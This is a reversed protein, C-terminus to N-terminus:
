PVNKGSVGTVNGAQDRTVTERYITKGGAEYDFTIQLGSVVESSRASQQGRDLRYANGATIGDAHALPYAREKIMQLRTGAQAEAMSHALNEGQTMAEPRGPPPDVPLQAFDVMDVGQAGYGFFADFVQLTNQPYLEIHVPHAADSNIAMMLDHFSKSRAMERRVMDLFAQQDAASGALNLGVGPAFAAANNQREFEEALVKEHKGLESMAAKQDAENAASAIKGFASKQAANRKEISSKRAAEWWPPMPLHSLQNSGNGM